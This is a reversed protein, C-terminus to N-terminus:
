SRKKWFNNFIKLTESIAHSDPTIKERRAKVFDYRWSFKFNDSTEIRHIFACKIIEKRWKSESKDTSSHHSITHTSNGARRGARCHTESTNRVTTFNLTACPRLKLQRVCRLSIWRAGIQTDISRSTMWGALWCRRVYRRRLRIIKMEGMKRKMEKSLKFNVHCEHRTTNPRASAKHWEKFNREKKMTTMKTEKNVEGKEINTEWKLTHKFTKILMEQTSKFDNIIDRSWSSWKFRKEEEKTNWRNRRDRKSWRFNINSTELESTSLWRLTLVHNLKM